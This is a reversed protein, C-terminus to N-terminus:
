LVWKEFFELSIDEIKKGLNISVDLDDNHWRVRDSNKFHVIKDLVYGKKELLEKIEQENM